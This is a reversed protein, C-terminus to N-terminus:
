AYELHNNKGKHSTVLHNERTTVTLFGTSNWSIFNIFNGWEGLSDGGGWGLGQLKYSEFWDLQTELLEEIIAQFRGVLVLELYSSCILEQQPNQEYRARIRQVLEKELELPLLKGQSRM